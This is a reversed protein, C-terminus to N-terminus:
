ASNVTWCWCSTKTSRRWIQWRITRIPSMLIECLSTCRGSTKTKQELRWFLFSGIPFDSMMSDFLREIRHTDWVFERQIAPLYIDHNIQRIIDSVRIPIYELFHGGVKPHPYRQATHRPFAQIANIPSSQPDPQSIKRRPCMWM